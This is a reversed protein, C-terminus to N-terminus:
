RKRRVLGELSDLAERASEAQQQTLRYDVLATKESPRGFLDTIDVRLAAALAQLTDVSPNAIKREVEGIFKYSLGAAEGLAEQSWGRTLRLARVRTGLRERLQIAPSAM